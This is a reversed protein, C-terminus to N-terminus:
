RPPEELGLQKMIAKRTRENIEAAHRPLTSQRGKFTLKTHKAGESLEVGLQRLWRRFESTKM